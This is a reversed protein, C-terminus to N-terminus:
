YGRNHENSDGKLEQKQGKLSILQIHGDTVSNVLGQEILFELSALVSNYGVKTEKHITTPTVAKEQQKLFEIIRKTTKINPMIFSYLM